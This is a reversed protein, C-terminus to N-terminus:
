LGSGFHVLSERKVPKLTLVPINSLDVIKQCLTGGILESLKPATSNMQVILDSEVQNAYDVISEVPYRSPISKNTCKVNKNKIFQKVQQMYPLLKNEYVSDDPNFVTVLRIDANFFKAIHIATVVKENSEPSLDFPMVINKCKNLYNKSRVTLVQCPADKLFSSLSHSGLFTRIREPAEIGTIILSSGLQRAMKKTEEYLNGAISAYNCILGSEVETQTALEQLRKEQNEEQKGYTHLLFLNSKTLRGIDFSHKIAILSQESFDVPILITGNNKIRM